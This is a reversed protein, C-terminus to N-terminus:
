RRFRLSLPQRAGLVRAAQGCAGRAYQRRHDRFQYVMSTGAVWDPCLNTEALAEYVGAQYAGLAGGGQLLLAICDFPPRHELKHSKRLRAPPRSVASRGEHIENLKSAKDDEEPLKLYAGAM